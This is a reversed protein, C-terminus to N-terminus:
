VRKRGSVKAQFGLNQEYQRKLAALRWDMVLVQGNRACERLEILKEVDCQDLNQAAETTQSDLSRAELKSKLVVLQLALVVLHLDVM